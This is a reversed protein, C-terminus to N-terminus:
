MLSSSGERSLSLRMGSALNRSVDKDKKDVVKNGEKHQNGDANNGRAALGGMGHGLGSEASPLTWTYGRDKNKDEPKPKETEKAHLNKFTKNTSTSTSPRDDNTSYVSSSVSPARLSNELTAATTTTTSPETKITTKMNPASTTTTPLGATLTRPTTSSSKISAEYIPELKTSHITITSNFTNNITTPSNTSTSSSSLDINAWNNKDFQGYQSFYDGARPPAPTIALDDDDGIGNPNSTGTNAKPQAAKSNDKMNEPVPVHVGEAKKVVKEGGKSGDGDGEPKKGEGAGAEVDREKERRKRRWSQSGKRWMDMGMLLVLGLVFSAIVLSIAFKAGDSMGPMSWASPHPAETPSAVEHETVVPIETVTPVETSPSTSVSPTEPVSPVEESPVEPVVPTGPPLPVEASPAEPVASIGSLSFVEVSPVEIVSPAETITPVDATTTVTLANDHAALSLVNVRGGPPVYPLHM